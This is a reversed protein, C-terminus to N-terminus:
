RSQTAKTTDWRERMESTTLPLLGYDPELRHGSLTEARRRLSEVSGSVGSIDWFTVVGDEGALAVQGGDPSWVAQVLPTGHTLPPTVPEGTFADWVRAFGAGGGSSSLTLLLRGDPSFKVKAAYGPHLMGPSLRRGTAADWIIALRDEGGTAVRKGDPSFAATLVGDRHQLEPGSAEGTATDWLRAGRPAQSSDTHATVLRQGDPSFNAETLQGSQKMARGVPRGTNADWIRATGDAAATVFRRGDSSFRVRSVVSKANSIQYAMSGDATNWVYITGDASASAVQRGDPSLDVSNFVKSQGLTAGLQRRTKLDWLRVGDACATVATQGDLGLVTARVNPREAPVFSLLRGSQADWLSLQGGRGSIFLQEGNTTFQVSSIAGDHRVKLRAGDHPHLNWLRAIQDQGATVLRLNDPSFDLALVYGGHVLWPSVPEGRSPNWVRATFDWGCTALRQSDDSFRSRKVGTRHRMTSSREQFDDTGLLRVSGDWSALVLWRGDPSFQCDYLQGNVAISHLVEGTAADWVLLQRATTTAIWKEDRSFVLRWVDAPHRLTRASWQDLAPTWLQVERRQVTALLRSGPSFRCMAAPNTSLQLRSLGNEPHCLQIGKLGALALWKGDPSFEFEKFQGQRVADDALPIRVGNLADWLHLHQQSDLTGIRRADPSFKAATVEHEHELPPVAAEGNGADWVSVRRTSGSSLVRDGTPSFQTGLIIGDHFWVQALEPSQRLVAGIRRRHIDERAADGDESRLAECFWLLARFYDGQDMLRNGANVNLVVLQQRSEEAKREAQNRLLVETGQAKRIRLNARLLLPVSVAIVLLAVVLFTSAIPNRRMLKGARELGSVPRALIPEDRLWRELDNALAEASGYRRAPEKALAKLCITELDRDVEPQLMSPRRPEKELVQRVTEMTTGGAFPPQGTLLEYFVAGLGYVDVATTLQRSEGRAQEPSMYSPTGLLASTRTLTSDKEILRALGFDTLYPEGHVDLLVNGPKIDRHLISRQHAYHVARALKTILEAAARNPFRAQSGAIGAALSGGEVFKMSFFPQGESENVEYIPVIHPHDLLAIAEAETRFRKIFDPAAFVGGAMVKLAVTRNLRPQRARYIIGMGGRAIETQLEYGGFQRPLGQGVGSLSTEEAVSESLM